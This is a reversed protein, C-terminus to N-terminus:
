DSAPPPGRARTPTRVGSRLPGPDALLVSWGPAPVAAVLLARGAPLRLRSGAVLVGRTVLALLPVLLLGVWVAREAAVDGLSGGRVLRELTEQTLFLAGTAGVLHPTSPAPRGLVRTARCTMLWVAVAAALFLALRAASELYAHGEAAVARAIPDPHAVVYAVQHLLVVSGAAVLWTTWSPWRRLGVAAPAEPETAENM